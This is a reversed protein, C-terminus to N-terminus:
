NEVTPETYVISENIAAKTIIWNKGIKGAKINGERCYKQVTKPKMDLIKAVERISYYEKM